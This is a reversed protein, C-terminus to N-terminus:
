YSLSNRLQKSVILSVVYGGCITISVVIFLGSEFEADDMEAGQFEEEVLRL